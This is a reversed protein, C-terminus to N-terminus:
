RHEHRAEVSAQLLRQRNLNPRMAIIGAGGNWM